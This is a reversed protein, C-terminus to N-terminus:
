PVAVSYVRHIGIKPGMFVAFDNLPAVMSWHSWVAVLHIRDMLNIAGKEM